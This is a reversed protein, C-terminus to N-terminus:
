CGAGGGWDCVGMRGRWGGAGQAPVAFGMRPFPFRTPALSRRARQWGKRGLGAGSRGRAGSGGRVRRPSSRGAGLLLPDRRGEGRGVAGSRPKKLGGRGMAPRSGGLGLGGLGRLACTATVALPPHGDGVETRLAGLARGARSREGTRSSRAAGPSAAWTLARTQKGRTRPSAPSPAARVSGEWAGGAGEGGCGEASVDRRWLLWHGNPVEARGSPRRPEFRFAQSKLIKLHPPGPGSAPWSPAGPPTGAQDARAGVAGM